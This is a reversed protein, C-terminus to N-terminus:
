SESGISDVGLKDDYGGGLGFVNVGALAMGNTMSKRRLFTQVRKRLGGGGGRGVAIFEIRGRGLVVVRASGPM